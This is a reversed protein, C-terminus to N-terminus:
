AVIFDDFNERGDVSTNEKYKNESSFNSFHSTWMEKNPHFDHCGFHLTV